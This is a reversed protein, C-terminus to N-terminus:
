KLRTALVATCKRRWLTRLCRRSSATRALSLLLPQLYPHLYAYLSFIANYYNISDIMSFLPYPFTFFLTFCACCAHSVSRSLVHLYLPIITSTRIGRCMKIRYDLLDIPTVPKRGIVLVSADRRMADVLSSQVRSVM